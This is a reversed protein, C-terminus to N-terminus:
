CYPWDPDSVACSVSTTRSPTSPRAFVTFVVFALIWSLIMVSFAAAVIDTRRGERYGRWRSGASRRTAGCAACVKATSSTATECFSCRSTTTPGAVMENM